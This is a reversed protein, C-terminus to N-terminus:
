RLITFICSKARSIKLPSANKVDTEQSKDNYGRFCKKCKLCIRSKTRFKIKITGDNVNMVKEEIGYIGQFIGTM